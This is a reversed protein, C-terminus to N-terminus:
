QAMVAEPLEDLTIYLQHNYAYELEDASIYADSFSGDANIIYDGRWVTFWLWMANDRYLKDPNPAFACESLAVAKHANYYGTEMFRINGSEMASNYIDESVIDVYDDGPYFEANEGNWVWIINNLGHYAFREVLTIWLWKYSESDTGWWYWEWGAEALPRFLVTVGADSLVKMQEAMKDIDEILLYTEETITGDGYLGRVTELSVEGLKQDSSVKSFDFDTSAALYHSEDSPAYWSWSYSVLGGKKAWEEALQFDINEESYYPSRQQYVSLDAARIAPSRGTTELVANLETNTNPTVYQGTLTQEGYVSQLYQMIRVTGTSADEDVLTSNTQYYSDSVTKGREVSFSDIYAFGELCLLTLKNEGAQLFVGNLSFSNFAVSEDIYYAGVAAGDPADYGHDGTAVGDGGVILQLKTSASCVDFSIKYHQSTPVTVTVTTYEGAPLQVYGDGSYGNLATRTTCDCNGEMEQEFSFEEQTIQPEVLQYKDTIDTTEEPLIIETPPLEAATTEEEPYEIASCATLSLCLCVALIKKSLSM